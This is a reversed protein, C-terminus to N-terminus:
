TNSRELVAVYTQKLPRSHDEYLVRAGCRKFLDHYGNLTLYFKGGDTIRWYLSKLWKLMLNNSQLPEYLMVVNSNELSCKLSKRMDSISKMHHLVGFYTIADPKKKLRSLNITSACLWVQDPFKRRCHGIMRENIDLGLFEMKRGRNWLYNYVYGDGCGIDLVKDGDKINRYFLDLPESKHRCFVKRVLLTCWRVTNVKVRYLIPKDFIREAFREEM